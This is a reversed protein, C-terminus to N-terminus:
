RRFRLWRRIMRVTCVFLVLFIGARLLDGEDGALGTYAAKGYFFFAVDVVLLVLAAWGAWSKAVANTYTNNIEQTGQNAYLPGKGNNQNVQQNHQNPGANPDM